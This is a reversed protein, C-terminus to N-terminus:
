WRSTRSSRAAEPRQEHSAKRGFVEFLGPGAQLFTGHLQPPICGEVQSAMTARRPKHRRYWRVLCAVLLQGSSCQVASCQVAKQALMRGMCVGLRGARSLRAGLIPLHSQIQLGRAAPRCRRAATKRPAAQQSRLQPRVPCGRHPPPPDKRPARRPQAAGALEGTVAGKRPVEAAASTTELDEEPVYIRVNPTPAHWRAAASARSCPRRPGTSPHVHQPSHRGSRCRSADTSIRKPGVTVILANWSPHPPGTPRRAARLAFNSM